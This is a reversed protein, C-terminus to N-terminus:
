NENELLEYYEQVLAASDQELSRLQEDQLDLNVSKSLFLTKERDFMSVYSVNYPPKVSSRPILYEIDSM